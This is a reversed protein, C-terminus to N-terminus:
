FLLKDIDYINEVNVISDIVYFIDETDETDYSALFDVDYLYYNDYDQLSLLEGPISLEKGWNKIIVEEIYKPMGHRIDKVIEITFDLEKWNEKIKSLLEKKNM